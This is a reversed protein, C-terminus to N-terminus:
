NEIQLTKLPQYQTRLVMLQVANFRDQVFNIIKNIICPGLTLPLLLIALPRLLASLLTTLWPSASFWSEFWGAEQERERQRKALGERIKAMSDRVIGTHDAYEEGLAACLGGQQLFLLDLGRRNQLVVESLSTLSKGLSTIATEIREIDKDVAERLISFGKNQITLASIGTGTGIAGLGFIIALTLAGATILARKTVRKPAIWMQDIYETPHYIIKPFVIVMVCFESQNFMDWLPDDKFPIQIKQPKRPTTGTVTVVQTAPSNTGKNTSRPTTNPKSTPGVSQNPGVLTPPVKPEVKLKIQIVTAYYPPGRYLYIGWSLGTTWRTEKKGDELFKIQVLNCDPDRIPAPNVVTHGRQAKNCPKISMKIYQPKVHWKWSGDNTTVCSWAKCYLSELGRCTKRMAGTRFGPCAYFGEDRFKNQQYVAASRRQKDFPTLGTSVAVKELNFYLDPWWSNLPTDSKTTTNYVEHTEWNSVESTLTYPTHPNGAMSILRYSTLLLMSTLTGEIMTPGSNSCSNQDVMWATNAEPLFDERVAFPDAPRAHTYHIWTTIGNVKLATPTTLIVIYPGKWRPQLTEQKHRRVYVWDGPGYHHPEPPPGSEYIARLRPWVEQHTHQLERRGQHVFSSGDTFWTVEADPLCDERIGHVQALIEDCDHLPIDLDPDPLM